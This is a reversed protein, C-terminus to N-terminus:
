YKAANKVLWYKMSYKGVLLGIRISEKEMNSINESLDLNDTSSIFLNNYDYLSRGYKNMQNLYNSVFARANYHSDSENLNEYKSFDLPSGTVEVFSNQYSASRLFMAIEFSYTANNFNYETMWDDNKSLIPLMANHSKGVKIAEPFRSELELEENDRKTMATQVEASDYVGIISRSLERLKSPQSIPYIVGELATHNDNLKNSVDAQHSRFAAHLAASVIVVAWMSKEDFNKEIAYDLAEMAGEVAGLLDAKIIDLDKDNLITTPTPNGRTILSNANESVEQSTLVCDYDTEQEGYNCSTFMFMIVITILGFIKSKM